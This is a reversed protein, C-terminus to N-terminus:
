RLVVSNFVLLPIFAAVPLGIVIGLRILVIM